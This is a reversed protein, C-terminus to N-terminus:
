DELGDIKMADIIKDFLMDSYENSDAAQLDTEEAAIKILEDLKKQAAIKILINKKSM